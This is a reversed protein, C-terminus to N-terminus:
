KFSPLEKELLIKLFTKIKVRFKSQCALSIHTRVNHINVCKFLVFLMLNEYNWWHVQCSNLILYYFIM